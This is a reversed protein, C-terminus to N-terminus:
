QSHARATGTRSTHDTLGGAVGIGINGRGQNGKGGFTPAAVRRSQWWIMTVRKLVDLDNMDHNKRQLM